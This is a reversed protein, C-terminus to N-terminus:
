GTGKDDQKPSFQWLMDGWRRKPPTVVMGAAVARRAIEEVIDRGPTGTTTLAAFEWRLWGTGRRLDIRLVDWPPSFRGDPIMSVAKLKDFPVFSRKLAHFPGFSCLTLGHDDIRVIIKQPPHNAALRWAGGLILAALLYLAVDRDTVSVLGPWGMRGDEFLKFGMVVAALSAGCLWIVAREDNRGRGPGFVRPNGM